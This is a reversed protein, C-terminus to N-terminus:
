KKYTKKQAKRHHEKFKTFLRSKTIVRLSRAIVRIFKTLRGGKLVASIGKKVELTEHVINQGVIVREVAIVSQYLKGVLNFIIGFPFVALIDLWYHKFFYPSNKSHIALFILDIVFIAIVIVDVITVILEITPDGIHVFLEIIIIILLGVIAFPILRANFHEIKEFFERYKKHM